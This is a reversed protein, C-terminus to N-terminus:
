PPKVLFELNGNCYNVVIVYFLLWPLMIMTLFTYHGTIKNCSDCMPFLQFSFNLQIKKKFTDLTKCKRITVPLNNGLTAAAKRFCRNRYTVGHTTPVPLFSGSEAKNASISRFTGRLISFCDM